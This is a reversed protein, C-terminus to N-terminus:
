IERVEYPVNLEKTVEEVGEGNEIVYVTEELTSNQFSKLCEKLIATNNKTPIIVDVKKDSVINILAQKWQDTMKSVTYKQAEKKAEIGMKKRIDPNDRLITLFYKWEYDTDNKTIFGNKGHVIIKKYAPLPSCVIPKGYAMSQTLRNNSKFPQRKYNAPVIIIDAKSIEQHVTNLDWKIDANPHEHITILQMGLDDEIIGRLKEAMWSSGGYGFWMVKLKM